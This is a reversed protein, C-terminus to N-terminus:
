KGGKASRERHQTRLQDVVNATTERELAKQAMVSEARSLGDMARAVVRLPDLSSLRNAAQRASSSSSLSADGIKHVKPQHSM